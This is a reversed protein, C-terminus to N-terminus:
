DYDEAMKELMRFNVKGITTMPMQNIVVYKEPQEYSKLNTEAYNKIVAIAAEQNIDNQLVVFAFLKNISIDDAKGVISISKVSEIYSFKDELTKPFIKHYINNELVLIIRKVRGTITVFGDLDIKGIDGTHVWIKGDNHRKLINETEIENKYYQLMTCPSCICIEGEKEYSLEEFTDTDVVKICTYVLPVGITGQKFVINETSYSSAATAAATETMAYGQAVHIKSNHNELWQNLRNELLAPLMDGGVSFCNLFSLDLDDSLTQMMKEAQVTGCIIYNPHYQCVANGINELDIGLAAKLGFCLPLHMSVTIGFAIFPPLVSLFTKKREFGLIRYQLVAANLNLNSLLVAKSKGTTGGTYVMVVPDMYSTSITDKKKTHQSIFTEWSFASNPKKKKKTKYRYVMKAPLSMEDDVSLIIIKEAINPSFNMSDYISDVTVFVKSNTEQLNIRIEEQNLTVYILNSTAGLKSLAYIMYITQPFLLSQITVIDGKSVGLALFASETREINAFLEKYTIKRGFYIIAVDNLHDKNNEWLYEYITCKPLPSNIAEDSYYKLWPKDISPYGTLGKEQWTNEM